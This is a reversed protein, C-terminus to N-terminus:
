LLIAATLRDIPYRAAHATTVATATPRDHNPMREAISGAGTAATSAVVPGPTRGIGVTVDILTGTGSTPGGILVGGTVGEDM